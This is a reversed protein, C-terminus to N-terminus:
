AKDAKFDVLLMETTATAAGSTKSITKVVQGPVDECMWSKSNITMGSQKMTTESWKTDLKKGAVKLTEKGEKIKVDPAAGKGQQDKGEKFKPVKAQVDMKFPPSKFERGSAKSVSVIELVAKETTISKLTTTTYSESTIGAVKTTSKLKAFSGPKFQAWHKYLPNDVMEQASAGSVALGCGVLLGCLIKMPERM